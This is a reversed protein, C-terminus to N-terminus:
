CRVELTRPERGVRDPTQRCVTNELLNESACIAQWRDWEILKDTAGRDTDRMGVHDDAAWRSATNPSETPKRGVSPDVNEPRRPATRRDGGPDSRIAGHRKMGVIHYDPAIADHHGRALPGGEIQRPRQVWRVQERHNLLRHAVALEGIIVHTPNCDVPDRWLTGPQPGIQLHQIPTEFTAGGVRVVLHQEAIRQDRRAQGVQNALEGNVQGLVARCSKIERHWLEAPRDLDVNKRSVVLSGASPGIRPPISRRFLDTPLHITHHLTIKAGSKRVGNPSERAGISTACGSAPSNPRACTAGLSM